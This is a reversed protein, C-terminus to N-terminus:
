SSEDATLWMAELEDACQEWIEARVNCREEADTAAKMTRRIRGAEERSAVAKRRWDYILKNATKKIM